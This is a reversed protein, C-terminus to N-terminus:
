IGSCASLAAHEETHRVWWVAAAARNPVPLKHCIRWVYRKITGVTLGLEWAIQKNAKGAALLSCIQSERRTLTM